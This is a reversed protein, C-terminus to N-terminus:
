EDAPLPGPSEAGDWARFPLRCHGGRLADVEVRYGDAVKRALDGYPTAGELGARREWVDAMYETQRIEDDIDWDPGIHRSSAM